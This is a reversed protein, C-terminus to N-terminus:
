IPSRSDVGDAVNKPEYTTSRSETKTEPKREQSEEDKSIEVSKEDQAFNTNGIDDKGGDIAPTSSHSEPFKEPSKEATEALHLTSSHSGSPDNRNPRNLLNGKVTDASETESVENPPETELENKSHDKAPIILSKEPNKDPPEEESTTSKDSSQKNNNTEKVLVEIVFSTDNFNNSSERREFSKLSEKRKAALRDAKIQERLAASM